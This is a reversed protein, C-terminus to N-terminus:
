SPKKDAQEALKVQDLLGSRTKPAEVIQEMYGVILFCKDMFNYKEKSLIYVGKNQIARTELIELEAISGADDFDIKSYKVRFKELDMDGGAGAPGFGPLSIPDIKTIGRVQQAEIASKIESSAM